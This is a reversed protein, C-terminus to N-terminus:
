WLVPRCRARPDARRLIRRGRGLHSFGRVAFVVVLATCLTSEDEPRQEGTPAVTFTGFRGVTPRVLPATGRTSEVEAQEEPPPAM